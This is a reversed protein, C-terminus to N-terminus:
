LHKVAAHLVGIDRQEGPGNVLSWVIRLQPDVVFTGRVAMGSAEDFVGYARAVEGHPWFDSLLPFRYGEHAAWAAQAHRPDCSIAYVNVRENVFEDVNLQIELLEGTCISSFAFPFFVLLAHRDRVAESLTVHAGTQDTLTFDPALDGVAPAPNTALPLSM